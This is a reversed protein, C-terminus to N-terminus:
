RTEGGKPSHKGEAGFAASFPSRQGSPNRRSQGARSPYLQWRASHEDYPPMPQMLQAAADTLPIVRADEEYVRWVAYDPGSPIFDLPPGEQEHCLAAVRLGAQCDCAVAWRKAPYDPPCVFEHDLAARVIGIAEQRSYRHPVYGMGPCQGCAQSATPVPSVPPPTVPIKTPPKTPPPPATPSPVRALLEASATQVAAVTGEVEAQSYGSSGCSTTVGVVLALGVATIALRKM